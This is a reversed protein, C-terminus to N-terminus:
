NGEKFLKPLYRSFVSEMKEVQKQEEIAKVVRSEGIPSIDVIEDDDTFFDVQLHTDGIPTLLWVRPRFGYKKEQLDTARKIADLIKPDNDKDWKESM